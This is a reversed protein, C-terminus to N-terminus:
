SGDIPDQVDEDDGHALAEHGPPEFTGSEDSFDVSTDDERRRRGPRMEHRLFVGVAILFAVCVVLPPTLVTLDKLVPAGGEPRRIRDAYGTPTDPGRKGAASEPPWSRM